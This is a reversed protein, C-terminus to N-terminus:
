LSQQFLVAHRMLAQKGKSERGQWWDFILKATVGAGVAAAAVPNAGTAHAGAAAFATPVSIEVAARKSSRLARSRSVQARAAQAAFDLQASLTGAGWFPDRLGVSHCYLLHHRVLSVASAVSGDGLGLWGLTASLDGPM